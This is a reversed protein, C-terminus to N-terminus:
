FWGKNLKLESNTHIESGGVALHRVGGGEVVSARSTVISVGQGDLSHTFHNFIVISIFLKWCQSETGPLCM